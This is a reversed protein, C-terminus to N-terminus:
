RRLSDFLCPLQYRGAGPIDGDREVVGIKAGKGFSAVKYTNTTPFDRLDVSRHAIGIQDCKKRRWSFDEFRSAKPMFIRSNAELPSMLGPSPPAETMGLSSNRMPRFNVDGITNFKDQLFFRPDLSEDKALLYKFSVFGM